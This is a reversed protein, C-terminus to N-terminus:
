LNWTNKLNQRDFLAFLHPQQMHELAFPANRRSINAHMLPAALFKMRVSVSKHTMHEQVSEASKRTAVAAHLIALNTVNSVNPLDVIFSSQEIFSDKSTYHKVKHM